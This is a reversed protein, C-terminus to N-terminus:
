ALIIVIAVASETLLLLMECFLCHLRMEKQISVFLTMTIGVVSYKIVQIFIKVLRYRLLCIWLCICLILDMFMFFYELAWWHILTFTNVINGAANYFSIKTRLLANFLPFSVINQKPRMKFCNSDVLPNDDKHIRSYNRNNLM